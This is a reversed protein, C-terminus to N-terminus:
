SKLPKQLHSESDCLHRAPQHNRMRGCCRGLEPLRILLWERNENDFFYKYGDLDDIRAVKYPGFASYLCWGRYEYIIRDKVARDLHLDNREFSFPGVIDYVERILEAPNKWKEGHIGLIVLGM